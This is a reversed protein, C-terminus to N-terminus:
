SAPPVSVRERKGNNNPEAAGAEEDSSMASPLESKRRDNSAPPEKAAKAEPEDGVELTCEGFTVELKGNDRALKVELAKARIVTHSRVSGSLSVEDADVNGALVGESHIRQARVNGVVTGTTAITLSPAKIEGDLVGRVVVPCTSSLTGKFETGEEVTTQKQEGSSYKSM